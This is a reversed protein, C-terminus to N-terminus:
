QIGFKCCNTTWYWYYLYQVETAGLPQIWFYMEDVFVDACNKDNDVFERGLAVDGSTTGHIVDSGTPNSGSLSGNIYITIGSSPGLFVLVCHFWDEPISVLDFDYKKDKTYVGFRFHVMKLSQLIVSETCVFAFQVCKCVFSLNIHGFSGGSNQFVLGSLLGNKESCIQTLQELFEKLSTASKKLKWGCQWLPAVTANLHNGCAHSRISTLSSPGSAKLSTSIFQKASRCFLLINLQDCCVFLFM